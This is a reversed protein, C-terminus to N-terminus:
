PLVGQGDLAKFWINMSEIKGFINTNNTLTGGYNYGLKAFTINMGYSLSRAITYATKIGREKMRDEMVSLLFVAFGHGRHSPLTAFDTMEVNGSAEDMESSAVSVIRDGDKVCFYVVNERMTKLVYDKEYIPFPYSKFVEGYVGSIEGADSEDAVSFEFASPLEVGPPVREKERAAFLVEVIESARNEVQRKECFFKSMFCGDTKGDYLGQIVAERLYGKKEFDKRATEPVKAVVKTYGNDATIKELAAVTEGIGGDGLKMLYIRDNYKGHQILSGNLKEIRDSM